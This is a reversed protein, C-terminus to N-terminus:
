FWAWRDNYANYVMGAHPDGPDDITMSLNDVFLPVRSKEVHLKRDQVLIVADSLM